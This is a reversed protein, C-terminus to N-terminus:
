NINNLVKELKTQPIESSPSTPVSLKKGHKDNHHIKKKGYYRKSYRKNCSTGIEEQKNNVELFERKIELRRDPRKLCCNTNRQRKNDKELSVVREVKRDADKHKLGRIMKIIKQQVWELVGINKKFHLFGYLISWICQWLVIPFYRGSFPVLPFYGSRQSAAQYKVPPFTRVTSSPPPSLPFDVSVIPSLPYKRKKQM